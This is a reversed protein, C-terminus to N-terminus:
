MLDTQIASGLTSMPNASDDYLTDSVFLLKKVSMQTTALEKTPFGELVNVTVTSVM